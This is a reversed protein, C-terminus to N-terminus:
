WVHFYIKTEGMERSARKMLWDLDLPSFMKDM